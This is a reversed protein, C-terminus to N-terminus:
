FQTPTNNWIHFRFLLTQEWEIKENWQTNNIKFQYELLLDYHHPRIAASLPKLRGGYVLINLFIMIHTPLASFLDIIWVYM